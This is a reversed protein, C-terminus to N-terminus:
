ATPPTRVSGDEEVVIEDPDSESGAAKAQAAAMADKVAQTVKETLSAGQEKVVQTVRAEVDHVTKQVTPNEWTTRAWEKAKELNQRGSETGYLYALGAGVILVAKGKM